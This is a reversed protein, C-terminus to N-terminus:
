HFRHSFFEFIHRKRYGFYCLRSCFKLEEGEMKTLLLNKFIKLQSPVCTIIIM